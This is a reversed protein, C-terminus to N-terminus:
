HIRTGDAASPFTHEHLGNPLATPTLLRFWDVVERRFPAPATTVTVAARTPAGISLVMVFQVPLAVDRLRSHAVGLVEVFADDEKELVELRVWARVAALGIRDDEVEVVETVLLEVDRGPNV